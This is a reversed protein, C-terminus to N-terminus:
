FILLIKLGLNISIPTVKFEKEKKKLDNYESEIQKIRDRKQEAVHKTKLLEDKERELSEIKSKLTALESDVNTVQHSEHKNTNNDLMKQFVQQKKILESNYENLQHQMGAMKLTHEKDLPENVDATLTMDSEAGLLNTQEERAVKLQEFEGLKSQMENMLQIKESTHSSLFQQREQQSNGLADPESSSIDPGGLGAPGPVMLMESKSMKKFTAKIEDFKKSL